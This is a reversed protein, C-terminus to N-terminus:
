TLRRLTQTAGQVYREMRAGVRGKLATVWIGRFNDPFSLWRFPISMEASLALM